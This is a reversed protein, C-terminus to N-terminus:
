GIELRKELEPAVSIVDLSIIELPIGTISFISPQTRGQDGHALEKVYLGGQCRIIFEVLNEGIKNAKVDYVMKYRFKDVRRYLVRLPTRQIIVRNRLEEEIKRLADEDIEGNFKVVLRYTKEDYKSFVNIKEMIKRDVYCLNKILVYGENVKNLFEELEKLNIKRKLPRRVEIVFPRGTNVTIVDLDERGASHFISVEGLFRDRFEKLLFGEISPDNTFGTYSCESCGSGKCFKCYQRTQRIGRKLKLYRGYIYVNSPIIELSSKELDYIVKLDPNKSDIKRNLIRSLIKSIHTNIFSKLSLGGNIEYKSRIYDERIVLYEPIRTGFNLSYFEYFEVRDVIWNIVKFLNFFFNNCLYCKKNKSFIYKFDKNLNIYLIKSFKLISIKENNYFLRGLCIPCINYREIIESAKNLIINNLQSM